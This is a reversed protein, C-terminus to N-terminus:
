SYFYYWDEHIEHLAVIYSLPVTKEEKRARQLIRKHVVEPDSRLYVILCIFIYYM